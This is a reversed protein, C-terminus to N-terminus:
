KNRPGKRKLDQLLMPRTIVTSRVIFKITGEEPEYYTTDIIDPTGHLFTDYLPRAEIAVVGGEPGKIERLEMRDYGELDSLFEEAKKLAVVGELGRFTKFNFGAAYPILRYSDGRHDLVAIKLLIEDELSTYLILDFRGAPRTDPSIRKSRLNSSTVLCATLTFVAALLVLVTKKLM